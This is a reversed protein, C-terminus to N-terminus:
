IFADFGVRLVQSGTSIGIGTLGTGGNWMSNINSQTLQYGNWIIIEDLEFGNETVSSAGDENGFTLTSTPVGGSGTLPNIVDNSDETCVSDLCYILFQNGITTANGKDIIFTLMHWNSDDPPLGSAFFGAGIGLGNEMYQLRMGTSQTFAYLGNADVSPDELTQFIPYEPAGDVDGKLWFNISTLNAGVNGRHMFEWLSPTGFRIEGNVGDTATGNQYVSQGIKGALPVFDGQVNSNYNKGNASSGYTGANVAQSFGAPAPSGGGGGGLRNWDGGSGEFFNVDKEIKPIQLTPLQQVVNPTTDFNSFIDPYVYYVGAVAVGILILMLLPNM